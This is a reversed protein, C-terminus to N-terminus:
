FRKEIDEIPVICTIRKGSPTLDASSCAFLDDMLQTAEAPTKLEAYRAAGMEALKRATASQMM